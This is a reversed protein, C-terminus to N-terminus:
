AFLRCLLTPTEPKNKQMHRLIHKHEITKIQSMTHLEVKNFASYIIFYILAAAMIWM